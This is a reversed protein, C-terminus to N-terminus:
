VVACRPLIYTKTRGRSNLKIKVVSSFHSLIPAPQNQASSKSALHFGKPGSTPHLPSCQLTQAPSNQSLFPLPTPSPPFAWSLVSALLGTHSAPAILWPLTILTATTSISLFCASSGTWLFFQSSVPSQIYSFFPSFPDLTAEKNIRSVEAM